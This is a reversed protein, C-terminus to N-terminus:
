GTWCWISTIEPSGNYLFYLAIFLLIFCWTFISIFRYPKVFGIAMSSLIYQWFMGHTLWDFATNITTYLHGYRGIYSCTERNEMTNYYHLEIMGRPRDNYGLMKRM